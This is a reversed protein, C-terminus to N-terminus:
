SKFCLCCRMSVAFHLPTILNCINSIAWLKLDLLMKQPCWCVGGSFHHKPSSFNQALWALIIQSLSIFMKDEKYSLCQASTCSGGRKECCHLILWPSLWQSCMLCDCKWLPYINYNYVNLLLLPSYSSQSVAEVKEETNYQFCETEDDHACKLRIWCCGSSGVFRKWIFKLRCM